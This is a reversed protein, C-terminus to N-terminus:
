PTPTIILKPTWTFASTNGSLFINIMDGPLIDFNTGAWKNLGDSYGYVAFSQSIPNWLMVKNIKTNSGAGTNGEIDIVIDSAKQYNATYPLCRKNSNQQAPNFYFSLGTLKDIGTITWVFDSVVNLYIGNSSTTGADVNWDTGVWKGLGGSYGYVVSSQNFPNWLLLKDIKNATFTNGEIDQVISSATTYKNVYPLSIRYVNSQGTRAVFNFKVKVAMTSPKSQGVGNVGAVTYFAFSNGSTDVHTFSSITPTPLVTAIINWGSPFPNFKGTAGSSYYIRYFNTNLTNHWSLTVNDGSGQVSLSSPPMPTEDPTSTFTPTITLTVTATPNAVTVLPSNAIEYTTSGNPNSEVTFKVLGTTNQVSAGPGGGSKSGYVVTIKGTNAILSSAYVIITQGSKLSGDYNGNTVSVTFYGPDNSNISPASWGDPIIIKLTGSGWTTSGATYEITMTYGSGGALVLNPNITASGEGTIPTPTLTITPTITFTQTITSTPSSTKTITPTPTPAIVDVEPSHAIPLANTGETASRVEFIAIGTNPQSTAGPGGFAKSGYIVTIKGTNAQLNSVYVTITNGSKSDGDLTGNTVNVTYFGPDTSNLSPPSWGAPIIIKLIGNGWTTPGATYEITMTNGSTGAAVQTPSISATGEGNSLQTPTMTITPTLYETSTATITQTSTETITFTITQTMTKTITETVTVTVTATITPTVTETNTRTITPSITETKTETATETITQTITNTKTETITPTMTETETNTITFTITRTVTDTTTETITETITNTNIETITQTTTQTVTWTITETSTETITQTGTQTVTETITVTETATITPTITQTITQTITETITHTITETITRTITPTVTRTITETVTETITPTITETITGTSTSTFTETMTETITDTTTESITPTITGTISPTETETATETITETITETYIETVTETITDTITPTITETQGFAFNFLFLVISYLLLFKKLIKM